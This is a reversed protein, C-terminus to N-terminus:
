KRNFQAQAVNARIRELSKKGITRFYRYSRFSMGSEEGCRCDNFYIGCDLCHYEYARCSCGLSASYESTNKHLCKEVRKWRARTLKDM